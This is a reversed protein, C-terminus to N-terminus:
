GESIGIEALLRSRTSHNTTLEQIKHRFEPANALPGKLSRMADRLELLRKLEPVQEVIADPTFDRLTEINLRVSLEDEPNGTLRNPVNLQLSIGQARMIDSFNDKNIAVPDRQELPREDPVGTFDGTVLMKMPLEVDERGDGDAPRYVINVREKPAVSAEKSM